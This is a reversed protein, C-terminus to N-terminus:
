SKNDTPQHTLLLTQEHRKSTANLNMANALEEQQLQRLPLM